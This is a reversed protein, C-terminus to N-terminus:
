RQSPGLTIVLGTEIELLAGESQYPKLKWQRLASEIGAREEATARIVHVHKVGGDGADDRTAFTSRAPARCTRTSPTGIDQAGDRPDYCKFGIVDFTFNPIGSQYVPDFAAHNVAPDIRIRAYAVKKGVHDATWGAFAADLM